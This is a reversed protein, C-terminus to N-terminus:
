VSKLRKRIEKKGLCAVALDFWRDERSVPTHQKNNRSEKWALGGLAHISVFKYDIGVNGREIDRRSCKYKKLWKDFEM